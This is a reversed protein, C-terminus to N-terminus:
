EVEFEPEIREQLLVEVLEVHVDDTEKNNAIRDCHHYFGREASEKTEFNYVKEEGDAEYEIRVQYDPRPRPLESAAEFCSECVKRKTVPHILRHATRNCHTTSCFISSM